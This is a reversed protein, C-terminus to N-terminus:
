PKMEGDSIETEIEDFGKPGSSEGGPACKGRLQGGDKEAESAVPRKKGRKREKHSSFIYKESVQSRKAQWQVEFDVPVRAMIYESQCATGTTPNDTSGPLSCIGHIEVYSQSIPELEMGKYDLRKVGSGNQGSFYLADILITM